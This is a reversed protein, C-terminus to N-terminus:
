VLELRLARGVAIAAKRLTNLTVADYDPNPVQELQLLTTRLTHITDPM